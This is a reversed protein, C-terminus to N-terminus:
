QLGTVIGVRKVQTAKTFAPRTPGSLGDTPLVKPTGLKDSVGFTKM